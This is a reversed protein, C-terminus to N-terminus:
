LICNLVGYALKVSGAVGTESFVVALIRRRRTADAPSIPYHGSNTPRTASRGSAGRLALHAVMSILVNGSIALRQRQRSDRSDQFAMIRVSDNATAGSSKAAAKEAAAWVL